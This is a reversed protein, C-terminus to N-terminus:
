DTPYTHSLIGDVWERYEAETHTGTIPELHFEGNFMVMMVPTNVTKAHWMVMFAYPHSIPMEALTWKGGDETAMKRLITSDESQGKGFYGDASVRVAVPHRKSIEKMEDLSSDFSLELVPKETSPNDGNVVADIWNIVAQKDEAGAYGSRRAVEKGDKIAVLTPFWPNNYKDHLETYKKGDLMGLKWAGNDANVKDM